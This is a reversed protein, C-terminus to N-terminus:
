TFNGAGSPWWYSHVTSTRSPSPVVGTTTSSVLTQRDDASNSAYNIGKDTYQARTM